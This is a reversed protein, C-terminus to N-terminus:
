LLLQAPHQVVVLSCSFWHVWLNASNQSKTDLRSLLNLFCSLFVLLFEIIVLLGGQSAWCSSVKRGCSKTKRLFIYLFVSIVIESDFNFAYWIIGPGMGRCSLIVGEVMTLSAGEVIYLVTPHKFRYFVFDVVFINPHFFPEGWWIRKEFFKSFFRMATLLLQLTETILPLLTYTFTFLAESTSLKLFGTTLFTPLDLVKGLLALFGKLCGWLEIIVSLAFDHSQIGWNQWILFSDHSFFQIM